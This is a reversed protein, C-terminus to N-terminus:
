EAIRAAAEAAARRVADRAPLAEHTSVEELLTRVEATALEGLRAVIDLRARSPLDTRTMLRLLIPRLTAFPERGVYSLLRRAGEQDVLGSLAVGAEVVHHDFALFLPEIASRANLEGLTTAALARVEASGDSLSSILARDAGPPACASIGQVALLRIEPRRHSLLEFLVPGADRHGLVTLTDVAVSLLEPPLGARIRASLPAIAAASGILGFAEIAGQIESRDHSELQAVAQELTLQASAASPLSLLFAVLIIHRM